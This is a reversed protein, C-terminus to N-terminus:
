LLGRGSSPLNGYLGCVPGGALIATRLNDEVLLNPEIERPTSPKQWINNAEGM